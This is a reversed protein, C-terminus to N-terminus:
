RRDVMRRVDATLLGHSAVGSSRLMAETMARELALRAQSSWSEDLQGEKADTSVREASRIGERSRGPPSSKSPGNAAAGSSSESTKRVVDEVDVGVGVGFGFASGFGFGFGFCGLLGFVFGLGLCLVFGVLEELCLDLGCAVGRRGLVGLLVVGLGLRVFVWVVVVVACTTAGVVVAARVSDCKVGVAAGSGVPCVVAVLSGVDASEAAGGGGVGVPPSDVVTPVGCSEEVAVTFGVGVGPDDAGAM